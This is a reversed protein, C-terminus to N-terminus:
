DDGNDRVEQVADAGDCVVSQLIDTALELNGEHIAWVAATVREEIRTILQAIPDYPHARAWDFLHVDKSVGYKYVTKAMKKSEEIM